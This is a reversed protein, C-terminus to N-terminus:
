RYRRGDAGGKEIQGRNRRAQGQSDDQGRPYRQSHQNRETVPGMDMDDSEDQDGGDNRYQDSDADDENDYHQQGRAAKERQDLARNQQIHANIGKLRQEKVNDQRQGQGLSRDGGMYQMANSNREGDQAEYIQARPPADENQGPSLVSQQMM